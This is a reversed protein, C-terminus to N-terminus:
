IGDSDLQKTMLTVCRHPVTISAFVKEGTIEDQYDEYLYEAKVDFGIREFAKRSYLGSLQM